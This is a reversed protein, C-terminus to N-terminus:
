CGTHHQLIKNTRVDWVRGCASVGGNRLVVRRRNAVQITSYSRTRASMGFGEAHLCM